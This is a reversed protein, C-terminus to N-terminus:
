GVLGSVLALEINIPIKEGRMGKLAAKKMAIKM